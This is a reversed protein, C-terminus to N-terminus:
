KTVHCSLQLIGRNEGSKTFVCYFTAPKLTFTLYKVQFQRWQPQIQYVITVMWKPCKINVRWNNFNKIHEPRDSVGVQTQDEVSISDGLNQDM